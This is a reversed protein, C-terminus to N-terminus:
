KKGNYGIKPTVCSISGENSYVYYWLITNWVMDLYILNKRFHDDDIQTNQMVVAMPFFDTPMRMSYWYKGHSFCVMLDNGGEYIFCHVLIIIKQNSYRFIWIDKLSYIKSCCFLCSNYKSNPTGVSFTVAISRITKASAASLHFKTNQDWRTTM